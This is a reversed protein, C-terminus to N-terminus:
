RRVLLQPGCPPNSQCTVLPIPMRKNYKAKRLQCMNRGCINLCAALDHNCGAGRLCHADNMGTCELAHTTLLLSLCVRTEAESFDLIGASIQM